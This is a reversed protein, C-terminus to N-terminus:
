VLTDLMDDRGYEYLARNLSDIKEALLEICEKQNLLQEKLVYDNSFGRRALSVLYENTLLKKRIENEIIGISKKM